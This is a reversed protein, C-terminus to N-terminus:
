GGGGQLADARVSATTPKYLKGGTFLTGIGKEPIAKLAQGFSTLRGAPNIAGKVGSAFTEGPVKSMAGQVGSFAVSTVGSILASKFADKLSGGNMLSAIGSGLAAGYPGLPTMSLAIPLIIPALKKFVKAVKKVVKAAAKFPKSIAKFIKGLFFEPLGTEPNISNVESGVVYREPDEIGM